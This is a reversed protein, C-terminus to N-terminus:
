IHAGVQHVDEVVLDQWDEKGARWVDYVSWPILAVIMLVWVGMWGTPLHAIDNAFITLFGVIGYYRYGAWKNFHRVTPNPHHAIAAYVFMSAALWIMVPPLSMAMPLFAMKKDAILQGLTFLMASLLTTGISLLNFLRASRLSSAAPIFHKDSVISRIEQL